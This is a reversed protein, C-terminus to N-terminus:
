MVCYSSSPKGYSVRLFFSWVLLIRVADSIWKEKPFIYQQVQSHFPVYTSAYSHNGSRGLWLSMYWIDSWHFVQLFSVPESPFFRQLKRGLHFVNKTSVAAHIPGVVEQCPAESRIWTWWGQGSWWWTLVNLHKEVNLHKISGVQNSGYSKAMEDVTDFALQM